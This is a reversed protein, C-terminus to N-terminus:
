SVCSIWMVTNKTLIYQYIQKGKYANSLINEVLHRLSPTIENINQLLTQAPITYPERMIQSSTIYYHSKPHTGHRIFWTHTIINTIPHQPHSYITVWQQTTGM